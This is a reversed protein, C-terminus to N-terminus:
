SHGVSCILAVQFLLTSFSSSHHIWSFLLPSIWHASLLQFLSFNLWSGKSIGGLCQMASSSDNGEYLFHTEPYSAGCALVKFSTRPNSYKRTCAFHIFANLLSLFLTIILDQTQSASSFGNTYLWTPPTKSEKLSCFSTCCCTTSPLM